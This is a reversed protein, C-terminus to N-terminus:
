KNSKNQMSEADIKEKADRQCNASKIFEVSEHRGARIADIAAEVGAAAKFAEFDKPCSMGLPPLM